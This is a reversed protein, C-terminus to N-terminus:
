DPERFIQNVLPTFKPRPRWDGFLQVTFFELEIEPSRPEEVENPRNPLGDLKMLIKM